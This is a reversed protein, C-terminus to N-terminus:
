LEGVEAKKATVLKNILDSSGLMYEVDELFVTSGGIHCQKLIMETMAREDNKLRMVYSLEKRDPKRFYGIHGDVKATYIKNYKRKWAEIQEPTAQGVMVKETNEM